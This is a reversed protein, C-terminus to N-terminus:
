KNVINNVICEVGGLCCLKGGNKIASRGAESIYATGQSIPLFTEYAKYFYAGKEDKYIEDFIKIGIPYNVDNMQNKPDM